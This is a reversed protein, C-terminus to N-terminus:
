GKGEIARSISNELIQNSDFDKLQLAKDADEGLADADIEVAVVREAPAEVIAEM